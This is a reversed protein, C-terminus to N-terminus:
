QLVSVPKLVIFSSIIVYMPGAVSCLILPTDCYQVHQFSSLVLPFISCLHSPSIASLFALFFVNLGTHLSSQGSMQPLLFHCCSTSYMNMENEAQLMIRMVKATNHKCLFTLCTQTCPASVAQSCSTRSLPLLSYHEARWSQMSGVEQLLLAAPSCPNRPASLLPLRSRLDELTKEAPSM